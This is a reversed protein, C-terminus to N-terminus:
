VTGTGPYPLTLQLTLTQFDISAIIGRVKDVIVCYVKRSLFCVVFCRSHRAMVKTWRMERRVGERRTNEWGRLRAPTQAGDHWAQGARPSSRLKRTRARGAFFSGRPFILRSLLMEKICFSHLMQIMMDRYCQSSAIAEGADTRGGIQGALLEFHLKSRLLQLAM